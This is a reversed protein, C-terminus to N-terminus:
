MQEKTIEELYELLNILLEEKDEFTEKYDDLVYKIQQRSIICKEAIKRLSEETYNIKSMTNDSILEMCVRMRKSAKYGDSLERMMQDKNITGEEVEIYQKFIDNYTKEYDKM